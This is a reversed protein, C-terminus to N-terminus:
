LPGSAFLASNTSKTPTCSTRQEVARGFGESVRRLDSSFAAHVLVRHARHIARMRDCAMSPRDISGPQDERVPRKAAPASGLTGKEKTVKEQALLLFYGAPLIGSSCGV